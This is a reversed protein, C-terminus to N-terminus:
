YDFEENIDGVYECVSDYELQLVKDRDSLLQVLAECRKKDRELVQGLQGRYKGSVICIYSSDSKPVMTELMSQSIDWSQVFGLYSLKAKGKTTIIVIIYQTSKDKKRAFDTEICLSFECIMFTKKSVVAYLDKHPGNEILCFAGKKMTLEGSDNGKESNQKANNLNQAQKRDAGLGMGKPRLVAEVPAVAKNNKGIGEGLKWGMGKLMAMGFAEIPVEDYDTDEPGDPRLSVDLREDTEFGEPVQNQMLLPIEINPDVVGHTQWSDLQKATDQMIEKIAQSDVGDTPLPPKDTQTKNVHDTKWNNTKILPIIIEKKEEKPKLSLYLFLLDCLSRPAWWHAM